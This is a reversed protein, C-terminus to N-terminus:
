RKVFYFLFSVLELDRLSNEYKLLYNDFLTKLEESL